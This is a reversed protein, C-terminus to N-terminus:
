HNLHLADYVYLMQMELGSLKGTNMEAVAREVEQLREGFCDLKTGGCQPCGKPILDLGVFKTTVSLDTLINWTAFYIILFVM